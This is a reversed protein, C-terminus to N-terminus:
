SLACASCPAPLYRDVACYPLLLCSCTYCLSKYLLVRSRGRVEAAQRRAQERGVARGVAGAVLRAVAAASEAAERDGQHGGAAAAGADRAGRPQPPGTARAVRM